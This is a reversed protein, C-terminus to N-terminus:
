ILQDFEGDLLVAGETIVQEGASVGSLLQIDSGLQVGTTVSRRELESDSRRVLVVRDDRHLLIASRPVVLMGSDAVSVWTRAVMAARLRPDLAVPKCVVRLTRTTPDVAHVISRVRGEYVDATGLAPVVFSCRAGQALLTADREPFRASVVLAESDGILFAPEADAVQVREGPEVTRSLVDGARPARLLVVDAGTEGAHAAALAERIGALEAESAAIQARLEVVERPSAANQSLLRETRMLADRQSALSAAVRKREARLQALASSHLTALVAGAQVREGVQVHVREIYGDFPVRVAYSADPAFEVQGLGELQAGDQAAHVAASVLHKRLDERVFLLGNPRSEYPAREVAQAASPPTCGDTALACAIIVGLV